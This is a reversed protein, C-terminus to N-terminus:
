RRETMLIPSETKQTLIMGATEVTPYPSQSNPFHYFFDYNASQSNCLNM